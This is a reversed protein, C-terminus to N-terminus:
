MVAATLNSGRSQQARRGTGCRVSVEAKLGMAARVPEGGGTRSGDPSRRGGRWVRVTEESLAKRSQMMRLGWRWLQVPIEGLHGKKKKDKKEPAAGQQEAGGKSLKRDSTLVIVM